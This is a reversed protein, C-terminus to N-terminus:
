QKIQTKQYCKNSTKSKEKVQKLAEYLTANYFPINNDKLNSVAEELDKKNYSISKGELYFNATYISTKRKMSEIRFSNVGIFLNNHITMYQNILKSANIREFRSAMNAILFPSIGYKQYHNYLNYIENELHCRKMEKAVESASNIIFIIFKKSTDKCKENVEITLNDDIETCLKRYFAFDKESIGASNCFKKITTSDTELFTRMAKVAEEGYKGINYDLKAKQMKETVIKNKTKQRERIEKEKTKVIMALEQNERAIDFLALQKELSLGYEEKIYSRFAGISDFDSNKFIEILRSAEDLRIRQEKEIIEEKLKIYLNTITSSEYEKSAMTILELAQNYSYEKSDIYDTISKEDELLVLFNNTEVSSISSLKNNSIFGAIKSVTRKGLTHSKNKLTSYPLQLSQYYKYITITNIDKIALNSFYTNAENIARERDREVNLINDISDKFLDQNNVRLFDCIAKFKIYDEEKIFKKAYSGMTYNSKSALTYVDPSLREFTEKSYINEVEKIVTKEKELMKSFYVKASNTGLFYPIYPAFKTLERSETFSGVLNIFSYIDFDSNDSFPKNRKIQEELSTTKISNIYTCFEDVKFVFHKKRYDNYLKQFTKVDKHYISYENDYNEILDLCTGIKDFDVYSAGDSYEDYLKIFQMVETFEPMKFKINLNLYDFISNQNVDMISLDLLKFMTLSHISYSKKVVERCVELGIFYKNNYNLKSSDLELFKALLKYDTKAFVFIKQLEPIKKLADMNQNLEELMKLDDKTIIYDRSSIIEEIKDLGKILKTKDMLSTLLKGGNIKNLAYAYLLKTTLENYRTDVNLFYLLSALFKKDDCKKDYNGKELMSNIIFPLKVEDFSLFRDKIYQVMTTMLYNVDDNQINTLTLIMSPNSQITQEIEEEQCRKSVAYDTLVKRKMQEEIQKIYINKDFM